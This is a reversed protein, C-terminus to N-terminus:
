PNSRSDENECLIHTKPGKLVRNFITSQGQGELDNQVEVSRNKGRPLNQRLTNDNGGDTWGDTRGDMQKDM